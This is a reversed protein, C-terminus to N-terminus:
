RLIEKVSLIVKLKYNNEFILLHKHEYYFIKITKVTTNHSYIM